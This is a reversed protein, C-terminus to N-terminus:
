RDGLVAGQWQHYIDSLTFLPIVCDRLSSNEDVVSRDIVSLGTESLDNEAIFVAGTVSAKAAKIRENCRLLHLGTSINSDVLVIKDGFRPEFGPPFSYEAGEDIILLRKQYHSSLLTALPVGTSSMSCVATFDASWKRDRVRDDIERIIWTSLRELSDWQSLLSSQWWVMPKGTGPERFDVAVHRLWGSWESGPNESYSMAAAADRRLSYWDATLDVWSVVSTELKQIAGGCRIDDRDQAFERIERVAQYFDVDFHAKAKLATGLLADLRTQMPVVIALADAARRFSKSWSRFPEYLPALEGALTDLCEKQPPNAEDEPITPPVRALTTEIAMFAKEAFANHRPDSQSAVIEDETPPITKILDDVQTRLDKNSALVRIPTRRIAALVTSSDMGSASEEDRANQLATALSRSASLSRRWSVFRSGGVGLMAVIIIMSLATMALIYASTALLVPMM